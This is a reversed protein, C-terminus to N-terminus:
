KVSVLCGDGVQLALLLGLCCRRGKAKEKGVDHRALALV